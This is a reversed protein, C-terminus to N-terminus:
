REANPRKNLISKLGQRIYLPFKTDSSILPIGETIAQSIIMLDAPDSHRPAPRLNYLTKLHSESIYRIEIGHADLSAKIGSYSQWEKVHIRGSKLLAVIERISEVSLIFTNEYDELLAKVDSGIEDRDTNLFLFINTDIFYRMVNM